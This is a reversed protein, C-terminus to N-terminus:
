EEMTRVNYGTPFEAPPHNVVWLTAREQPFLVDIPLTLGFVAEGSKTLNTLSEFGFSFLGIESLESRSVWNELQTSDLCLSLLIIPDGTQALKKLWRVSSEKKHIQDWWVLHVPGRNPYNYERIGAKVQEMSQLFLSGEERPTIIKSGYKQRLQRNFHAQLEVRQQYNLGHIKELAEHNVYHASFDRSCQASVNGNAWSPLEALWFQEVGGTQYPDVSFVSDGPTSCASALFLILFIFRM